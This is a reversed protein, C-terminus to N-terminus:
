LITMEVSAAQAALQSASFGAERGLDRRVVVAGNDARKMVWVHFPVVVRAAVGYRLRADLSASTHFSNNV